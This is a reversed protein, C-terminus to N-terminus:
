ADEREAAAPELGYVERAADESIFGDALDARVRERERERPDGYGGGATTHFTVTDGARLHEVDGMAHPLRREGERGENIVWTGGAGALGGGFGRPRIVSKQSTHTFIGGGQLVQYAITQGVGGRRYGAGGTDTQYERKLFLVPSEIETAEVPPLSCNTVHCAMVDIGDLDATAGLGGPTVEGFGYWRNTAPDHVSTYNYQCGCSDAMVRDPVADALAGMVLDVIAHCCVMRQYVAAPQRANVLSGEPAIVTIPERCGESNPLSPDTLCRMVYYIASMTTSLPANVPGSIQPDTGTFDFTIEAGTKHIAVRIMHPGGAYGDDLIPVEGRYVGDPIAAIEQRSRTAGHRILLDVIEGMADGHEVFIAALEEAAAVLSGNQAYLDNELAAPVRTNRLILDMVQPVPRGEEVMKLPPILLGEQQIETNWGRTGMTMAGVDLHHAMLGTFGVLAGDVFVPAYTVIDNTHASGLSGGGLYPDNTVVIDGPRWAERPIHHDLISRLVIGVCNLHIPINASEALLRCDVDFLSASCDEMEKIMFSQGARVLRESMGAAVTLLKNQLIELTIPDVSM